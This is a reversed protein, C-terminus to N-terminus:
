IKPTVDHHLIREIIPAVDDNIYFHGGEFWQTSFTGSTYDRWAGINTQNLWPDNHAGLALLPVSIPEILDRRESDFRESVQFDARLIPLVIEMFETNELLEAPFGKYEIIRELFQEDTLGAVAPRQSRVNPAPRGSVVLLAPPQSLRELERVVEFAIAAGFSHGFLVLRGHDYGQETIEGAIERAIAQYCDTLPENFRVERGPYQVAVLMAAENEMFPRWGRFVSAGGGAYPFCILTQRVVAPKTLVALSRGIHSQLIGM